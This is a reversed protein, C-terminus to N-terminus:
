NSVEVQVLCKLLAPLWLVTARHEAWRPASPHRQHKAIMQPMWDTTPYQASLEFAAFRESAIGVGFITSTNLSM